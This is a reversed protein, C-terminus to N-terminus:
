LHMGVVFYSPRPRLAVAIKETPTKDHPDNAIAFTAVACHRCHTANTLLEKMGGNNAM